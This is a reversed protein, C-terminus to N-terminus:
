RDDMISLLIHVLSVFINYLSIFLTLAASTASDEGGAIVTRIQWMIMLSSFIVFGASITLSLAPIQMFMNLIMGIILVVAGILLFQGLGNMSSKSRHAITAMTLFVGATMMAAMGVIQSGVSSALAFQLLPSIFFGIGFTFVMLLGIGVNNYRNKEIAFMLGYAFILFAVTPLWSNSFLSYFNISAGAYAGAACPLFSIGLLAYAKRLVATQQSEGVQGLHTFDYTNRPQM